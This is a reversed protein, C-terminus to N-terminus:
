IFERFSAFPLRFRKGELTAKWADATEVTLLGARIAYVVLGATTLLKKLGIRKELERRFRKKEDSAVCWGHASALALCAAEGAGMVAHLDGYTALTAPDNIVVLDMRGQALAERLVAAQGPDRVELVVHEPVAFRLRPLRLLLDLQDLHLFNILVNADALVITTAPAAGGSTADTGM